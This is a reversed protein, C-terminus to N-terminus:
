ELKMRSWINGDSWMFTGTDPQFQAASQKEGEKILFEKEGLSTGSQFFFNVGDDSGVISVDWVKRTIYRAGAWSMKGEEYHKPDTYLGSYKNALAPLAGTAKLFKDPKQKKEWGNGDPFKLLDNEYTAAIDFREKKGLKPSFDIDFSGCTGNFQGALKWFEIGDDTGIMAIQGEKNMSSIMRTGALTGEKYHNPDTFFGGIFSDCDKLGEMVKNDVKAATMAATMRAIDHHTLQMPGVARIAELAEPTLSRHLRDDLSGHLRDDLSRSGHQRDDPSGHPASQQRVSGSPEVGVTIVNQRSGGSPASTCTTVRSLVVLWSIHM